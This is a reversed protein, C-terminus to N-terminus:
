VVEFLAAAGMGGGICMSVVVYRLGRRKGELLAHGVMRAGSMGFPHGIAIAGGNVNLREDPIGLTDRCYLVQCAFAENIEWLGIHDLKLGHRKLLKPIAYVPGIGMEDANCGAVALGRYIGLPELGKQEALKASMLVSASAGDSLQSANGATIHKGAASWQGGPWVPALEGLGALTTDARNCEDRQLTVAQYRTEGSAKDFLAQRTTLPALEADFLGASQALATRLQSHYSYEDQAARSIGYREAVIEATELMAIYATPDQELVAQSQNRYSNKHKNQVLSISELGGAVAIDIEDCIISKAAWAISMLGSSCQREIAMGAVSPPLGGAVACLRGLNYAQTGQQAAAGIIVDDVEGPEIGARRVAEAVVHGGLVPAETDNYAGRFAKGIPTRATSVIVAEKM